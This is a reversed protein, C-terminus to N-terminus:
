EIGGICDKIEVVNLKLAGLNAGIYEFRQDIMYSEYRLFLLGM